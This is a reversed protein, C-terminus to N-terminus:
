NPKITSLAVKLLKEAIDHLDIKNTSSVLLVPLFGDVQRLYSIFKIVYLLINYRTCRAQAPNSSVVNNTTPVSQMPLQLDSKWVIVVV